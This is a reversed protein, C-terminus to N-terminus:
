ASHLRRYHAAKMRNGCVAMSCWRRAHNKTTDYFYLICPPNDCKKVLSLDGHCLLDTAAAAIPVMLQMAEARTTHLRKEFKGRARMVQNYTIGHRLAENITDLSSQPVPKGQTLHEAMARLSSRLTRAQEHTRRGEASNGWKKLAAKAQAADIVCAQVLWNVLAAYNELEDMIQGDRVRQTNIFDLALNEGIFLFDQKPTM